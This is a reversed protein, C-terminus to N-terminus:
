VHARGIELIDGVIEEPSEGRPNDNSIVVYSAWKAAIAGMVPRKKADRDGGCGFLCLLRGGREDAIQKAEQLVQDLGDPTHAYDVIVVLGKDNRLCEFRGPPPVLSPLIAHCDKESVGCGKMLALVAKLNDRNFRGKFCHTNPLDEQKYQEPYISVGGGTQMFGLKTERYAAISKHFDLHDHSINTVLKQSFRIGSIRDQAIGHSSVEMVFHTGGSQFHSAMLRHTDVSEPTTLSSNLTGLVYTSYGLKTLAQGLVHSVTTKGNTGTIGVVHLQESPRGFYVHAYEGMEKRSMKLIEGAGRAKAEECYPLADPTCIFIDSPVVKRSDYQLMTNPIIDTWM